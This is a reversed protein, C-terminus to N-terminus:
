PATSRPRPEPAAALAMAAAFPGRHRRMGDASSVTLRDANVIASLGGEEHFVLLEVVGSLEFADMQTCGDMIWRVRFASAPTTAGPVLPKGDVEVRTAPGCM